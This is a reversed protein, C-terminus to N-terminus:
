EKVRRKTRRQYDYWRCEPKVAPVSIKGEAINVNSYDQGFCLLNILTHPRKLRKCRRLYRIQQLGGFYRSYFLFLISIMNTAQTFKKRKLTRFASLLRLFTEHDGKAISNATLTVNLKEIKSCSGKEYTIIRHCATLQWEVDSLSVRWEIM